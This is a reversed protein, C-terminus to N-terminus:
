SLRRCQWVTLALLVSLDADLCTPLMTSHIRTTVKSQRTLLM